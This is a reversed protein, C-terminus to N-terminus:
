LCEADQKVFQFSERRDGDYDRYIFASVHGEGRLFQIQSLEPHPDQSWFFDRITPSYFLNMSPRRPEVNTLRVGREAASVVFVANLAECTYTGEYVQFDEGEGQSSFAVYESAVDHMQVILSPQDHSGPLRIIRIEDETWWPGDGSLPLVAGANFSVEFSDGTKIIELFSASIPNLYFGVLEDLATPPSDLGKHGRKASRRRGSFADIVLDRLTWACVDQRNTMCAITLAEDPLCALTTTFGQIEGSHGVYRMGRHTGINLGHGYGFGDERWRQVTVMRERVADSLVDSQEALNRGLVLLDVASTRWGEAGIHRYALRAPFFGTVSSTDTRYEYPSRLESPYRLYGEAWGETQPPPYDLIASDILGLPTLIREEVFAGFRRQTVREIMQALLFYNSDCYEYTTGPEFSLSGACCIAEYVDDPSPPAQEHWGAMYYLLVTYNRLGSEHHLLHTMRLADGYDPFEPLVDRLRTEGSLVGENELLAIALGTLTKMVSGADLVSHITLARPVELQARGYAKALVTEGHFSVAVSAGPDQDHIRNAMAKDIANLSKPDLHIRQNM